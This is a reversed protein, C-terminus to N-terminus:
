KIMHLNFVNRLVDDKDGDKGYYLVSRFGLWTLFWNQREWQFDFKDAGEPTLDYTAGTAYNMLVIKEPGSVGSNRIEYVIYKGDLSWRGGSEILGSAFTIQEAQAGADPEIVCLHSESEFMGLTRDYLILSGNPSWNLSSIPGSLTDTGSMLYFLNDGNRDVIFINLHPGGDIVAINEADPSWHARYAMQPSIKIPTTQGANLIFLSTDLAFENLGIFAIDDNKSVDFRYAAYHTGDLLNKVQKTVIDLSYVSGIPIEGWGTPRYISFYLIRPKKKSWEIHRVLFYDPATYLLKRTVRRSAGVGREEIAYISKHDSIYALSTPFFNFIVARNFFPSPRPRIENVTPTQTLNQTEGYVTSTIAAHASVVSLCTLLVILSFFTRILRNHCMINERKLKKFKKIIYVFFLAVSLFKRPKNKNFQKM